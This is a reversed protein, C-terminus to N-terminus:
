KKEKQDGPGCQSCSVSVVARRPMSNWVSAIILLGAAAYTASTISVIFKSVFVAASAAVGLALPGYGHRQRARFALAFLAVGLFAVTTPFLYVSSPIFPLGMASLLGTYAPWCAPCILTPFVSFLVGPVALLSQRNIRATSM